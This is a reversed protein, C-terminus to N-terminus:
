FPKNEIIKQIDNCLKKIQINLEDYILVKNEKYYGIINFTDDWLLNLNDKYYIKDKYMFIDAIVCYTSDM